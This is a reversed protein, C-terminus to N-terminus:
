GHEHRRELMAHLVDDLAEVSQPLGFDPPAVVHLVKSLEFGARPTIDACVARAGLGKSLGRRGPLRHGLAELDIRVLGQSPAHYEDSAGVGGAVDVHEPLAKLYAAGPRMAQHATFDIEIMLADSAERQPPTIRGLLRQERLQWVM